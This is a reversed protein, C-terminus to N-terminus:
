RHYEGDSYQQEDKGSYHVDCGIVAALMQGYQCSFGYLDLQDMDGDGDIDTSVAAALQALLDVTWKGELVTDNLGTLGYDDAHEDGPVRSADLFHWYDLGARKLRSDDIEFGLPRILHLRAGTAACTRAINGTNQPIEPSYLVVHM